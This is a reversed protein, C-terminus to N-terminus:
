IYKKRRFIDTKISTVRDLFLLGDLHDIEHQLIVAEFGSIELKNKVFNPDFYEIDVQNFRVVNATFDPISLCGERYVEKVGKTKLIPNILILLGHNQIKKRLRSADIIVIRKPIGLQIAALGVCGSHYDLTDRMDNLLDKLYPDNRNVDLSREKLISNPFKIIDCIM